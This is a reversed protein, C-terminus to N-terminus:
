EGRFVVQGDTYALWPQLDQPIKPKGVFIAFLNQQRPFLWVFIDFAARLVYGGIARVGGHRIWRTFLAVESGYGFEFRHRAEPRFTNITKRIEHETWRYVYNPVPSNDVGGSRGGHGAVAGIEYTSTLHLRQAVHMLLSDRNEIVMIGKRAVRYMELLARHPSSCHHLAAHVVVFDFSDDAYSLNHADQYVWQYEGDGHEGRPDVDSLTVQTYGCRNFVVRDQEGAAVVLVSASKDGIWKRLHEAYFDYRSRLM